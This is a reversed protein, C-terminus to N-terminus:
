YAGVLGTGSLWAKISQRLEARAQSATQIVYSESYGDNSAGSLGKGVGSRSDEVMQSIVNCICTKLQDYGFTESTIDAWRIPGIVACVEQEARQELMTFEDVDLNNNFLSSYQEWTIIPSM